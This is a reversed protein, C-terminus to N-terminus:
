RLDNRVCIAVDRRKVVAAALTAGFFAVLILAGLFPLAQSSPETRPRSAASFEYTTAKHHGEDHGETDPAYEHEEKRGVGPAGPPAPVVVAAPPPPIIVVDSLQEHYFYRHIVSPNVEVPRPQTHPQNVVPPVVVPKKICPGFGGGVSIKMRSTQFGSQVDIFTSGAKFTCLLGFQGDTDRVPADDHIFPYSDSHGFDPVVFDAISPDESWFRYPPQFADRAQCAGAGQGAGSCSSMLSHGLSIYAAHSQEPDTTGGSLSRALASFRLTNGAASTPADIAHIAISELVPFPIVKVTVQGPLGHARPADPDVNIVFWANYFGDSPLKTPPATSLNPPDYGLPAGGTGLIYVPVQPNDANPYGDRTAMRLGGTIVGSFGYSTADTAFAPADSPNSTWNVQPTRDPVMTPQNMVVITPVGRLNNQTKADAVVNSLWNRQLERPNQDFGSPGGYSRSSSDLVILRILRRNGRTVDFAYHTAALSSEPAPCTDCTFPVINPPAPATGWPKPFGSAFTQQWLDSGRVITDGGSGATQAVSSGDTGAFLDQTGLAGYVPMGLSQLYSAQEALDEPIGVGRGSGGFMVFQPANPLAAVRRIESRIRTAVMDAQTGAGMDISCIGQSCSTEALFAFNVGKAPLEIKPPSTEPAPDENIDFRYMSSSPDVRLRNEADRVGGPFGGVAWGTGDNDFAIAYPPDVFASADTTVYPTLTRGLGLDSWRGDQLALVDARTAVLADGNFKRADPSVSAVLSPRGGAALALITGAVPPTLPVFAGKDARELLTSRAGGVVVNGDSSVTVAYLPPPGADSNGLLKNVSAVTHWGSGTNEIVTANEGVAIVGDSTFAVDYLDDDTVTGSSPDDVWRSGNYRLITGQGGVAVGDDPSRFAIGFLSANTPRDPQPITRWKSGDFRAMLGQVGVAWAEDVAPWAIDDFQEVGTDNLVDWGAGPLYSVIAGGGGVAFIRGSRDPANAIGLLPQQNPQPWRAIHQPAARRTWHGVITESSHVAGGTGYTNGTTAMWGENPSSLALSILFGTSDPERSWGDDAFRFLGLGGAFVESGAVAFSTIGFPSIPFAHSCLATQDVEYSQESPSPGDVTKRVANQDPCYAVPASGGASLRIAFPRTADGATPDGTPHAGEGPLMAGGVWAGNTDATIAAGYAAQNFGGNPGAAPPSSFIPNQQDEDVAARTWNGASGRRYVHLSSSSAASVTWAVDRSVASVAGLDPSGDATADTTQTGGERSWSTGDYRMIWSSTGVAFGYVKGNDEVLSVSLIDHGAAVADAQASEIWATSGPDKHFMHGAEGSAWGEGDPALSLAYLSVNVPRGDAHRPPGILEWGRGNRSRLFVVQGAPDDHDYGPLPADVFGIAWFETTRTRVAVRGIRAPAPENRMAAIGSGLLGSRRFSRSRSPNAATSGIGFAILM